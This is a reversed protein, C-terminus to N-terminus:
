PIDELQQLSFAYYYKLCKNERELDCKATEIDKKKKKKSDRQSMVGVCCVRRTEVAM